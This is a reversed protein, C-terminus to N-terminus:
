QTKRCLFVAVGAFHHMGPIKLLLYDMWHLILSRVSPEHKKPQVIRLLRTLLHFYRTEVIEFRDTILTIDEQRLQRENPSVDKTVPTRDRLWRLAPSLAIPEQIIVYGNPKALSRISDLGKEIDIHHLIGQAVVMDFSGPPLTTDTADAVVFQVRDSVKDLRAKERALEVNDPSIDFGVVEHGALAFQCSNTGVGCGFDCLTKSPFRTLLEFIYEKRFLHAHKHERYRRLVEPTTAEAKVQRAAKAQYLLEGEVGKTNAPSVPVKSQM